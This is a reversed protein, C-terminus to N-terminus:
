LVCKTFKLANEIWNIWKIISKTYSSTWSKTSELGLGSLGSFGFKLLSVRHVRVRVKSFNEFGILGSGSSQGFLLGSGSSKQGSDASTSVCAYLVNEYFYHNEVKYPICPCFLNLIKRLYTTFKNSFCALNM